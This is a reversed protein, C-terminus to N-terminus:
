QGIATRINGVARDWATAPDGGAQEVDVLANLFEAGITATDPGMHFPELGLV